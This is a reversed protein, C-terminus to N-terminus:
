SSRAKGSMAVCVLLSVGHQWSAVLASSESQKFFYRDLFHLAKLVFNNKFDSWDFVFWRMFVCDCEHLGELAFRTWYTLKYLMFSAQASM